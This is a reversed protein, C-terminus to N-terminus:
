CIRLSALPPPSRTPSLFLSGVLGESVPVQSTFLAAERGCDWLELPGVGPGPAPCAKGEPLCSRWWWPTDSHLIPSFTLTWVADLFMQCTKGPLAGSASESAASSDPFGLGSLRPLASVRLVCPEVRAKKQLEASHEPLLM